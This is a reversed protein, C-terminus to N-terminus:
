TQGDGANARLSKRGQIIRIVHIRAGFQFILAQNVPPWAGSALGVQGVDGVADAALIAKVIQAIVHDLIRGVQHLPFQVVCDDVLSVVYQDVLRSRRQDDGARDVPGALIVHAKSLDHASQLFVRGVFIILRIAMVVDVLLTAADIQGLHADGLDLATDVLDIGLGAVAQVIRAEEM